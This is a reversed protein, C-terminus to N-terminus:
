YEEKVLVFEVRSLRSKFARESETPEQKLPQASGMGISLFRNPDISYTVTMYKVVAKSREVSLQKNLEPDGDSNTHGVIKVRFNPYHKLKDVLDDVVLKGDYTLRPSSRSFVVQDVKLTGVPKLDAWAQASLESFKQELSNGQVTSDKSGVNSFENYLEGLTEVHIIRYPDENPLPNKDFDGSKILVDTTSEIVEVLMENSVENPASVGLWQLCNDSLTQWKVGQVMKEVQAKTLGTEKVLEQVLEVPNDRYYKLSRFYNSLYKKTLAQNENYWKINVVLIDVIYRETQETGLIKVIGPTSLARSVEPEWLVAVDVTGALLKKLADESGDTEVRFRGPAPLLEPVNFHDKALKLLHHSPSYPTFGVVVDKGQFDNFSKGVKELAVIADGGKSEDIVMFILGPFDHVAANLVYSDVTAVVMDFEGDALKQMRVKYDLEEVVTIKCGSNKMKKRQVDSFLIYYGPWPDVAMVIEDTIDKAASTNVKEQEEAAEEAQAALEEQETTHDSFLRYAGFALLLVVVIAGLAIGQRKSM